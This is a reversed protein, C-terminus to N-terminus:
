DCDGYYDDRRWERYYRYEDCGGDYDDCGWNRDRDCDRDLGEHRGRWRDLLQLGQFEGGRVQQLESDTLERGAFGTLVKM